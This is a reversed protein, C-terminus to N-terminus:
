NGKLFKIADVNQKSAIKIVYSGASLNSIDIKIGHFINQGTEKRSSILVGETNWISLNYLENMPPMNIFKLNTSTTAPIPYLILGLSSFKENIECNLIFEGFSKEVNMATIGSELKLCTTTGKFYIAESNFMNGSVNSVSSMTFQQASLSNNQLFCFLTLNVIIAITQNKYLHSKNIM